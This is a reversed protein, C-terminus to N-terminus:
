LVVKYFFESCAPCVYFSDFPKRGKEPKLTTIRNNCGPCNFDVKQDETFQELWKDIESRKDTKM